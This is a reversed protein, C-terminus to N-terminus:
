LVNDILKVHIVALYVSYIACHRKKVCVSVVVIM